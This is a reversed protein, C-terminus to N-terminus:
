SFVYETIVYYDVGGFITLFSSYLDIKNRGKHRPFVALCRAGVTAGDMGSSNFSVLRSTLTDEHICGCECPRVRPCFQLSGYSSQM